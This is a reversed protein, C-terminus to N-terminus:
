GKVRGQAEPVTALLSDHLRRRYALSIRLEDALRKDLPTNRSEHDIINQTISEVEATVRWALWVPFARLAATLAHLLATLATM